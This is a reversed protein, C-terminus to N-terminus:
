RGDLAADANVDTCWAVERSEGSGPTATYTAYMATRRVAAASRRLRRSAQGPDRCPSRSWARTSNAGPKPVRGVSVLGRRHVCSGGGIVQQRVNGLGVRIHRAPPTRSSIRTCRRWRTCDRSVVPRGRGTRVLELTGALAATARCAIRTSSSPFGLGSGFRQRAGPEGGGVQVARQCRSGATPLRSPDERPGACM